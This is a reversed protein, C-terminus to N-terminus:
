LRAFGPAGIEILVQWGRLHEWLAWDDDPEEALQHEGNCKTCLPLRAVEVPARPVRFSSHDGKSLPIRAGLTTVGNRVGLVMVQFVDFFVVYTAKCSEDRLTM